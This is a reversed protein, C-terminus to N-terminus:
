ETASTVLLLENEHTIHSRRQRYDGPSFQPVKFRKSPDVTLWNKLRILESDAHIRRLHFPDAGPWNYDGYASCVAAFGAQYAIRFGDPTMNAPHGYPFAFYRVPRDIIAELDQKSGVIEDTLEATTLNHSLSAHSRSHAGLEIGHMALERIQAITNPRLPTGREIDHPFPLSELVHRTAIFYTFPIRHELLYPIADDWNDAYGDDFTICVAPRGNGGFIRTQAEPLSILDFHRSLWEIQALFRRTSITWDNPHRDAVRHYFLISVPHTHRISRIASACWRIPLTSWYYVSLAGLRAPSLDAM